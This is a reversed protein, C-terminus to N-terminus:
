PGEPAFGDPLKGLPVSTLTVLAGPPVTVEVSGDAAPAPAPSATNEHYPDALEVEKLGAGPWAVSVQQPVASRNLLVATRAGGSGEFASTLLDAQPSQAEVRVMGERIRRSFAGFM